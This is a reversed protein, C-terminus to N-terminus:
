LIVSWDFKKGLPECRENEELKSLKARVLYDQLRKGNQFGVVPVDPFVKKHEKNTTLSIHWMVVLWIFSICCIQIKRAMFLITPFHFNQMKLFNQGDSIANKTCILVVFVAFILM